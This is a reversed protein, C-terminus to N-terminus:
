LLERSLWRVNVIRLLKNPMEATRSPNLNTRQCDQTISDVTWWLCTYLSLKVIYMSLGPYDFYDVTVRLCNFLSLQVSVITCHCNYLSLQVIYM